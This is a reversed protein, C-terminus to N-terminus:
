RGRGRKMGERRGRKRRGITWEGRRQNERGVRERRKGWGKIGGVIDHTYKGREERDEDRGEGEGGKEREERGRKERRRKGRRRDREEKHGGKNRRGGERRGEADGGKEGNWSSEAGDHVLLAEKHLLATTHLAPPLPEKNEAGLPEGVELSFCHASLCLCMFKHIVGVHMYVNQKLTCSMYM